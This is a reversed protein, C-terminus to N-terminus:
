KSPNENSVNTGNQENKVAIFQNTVIDHFLGEYCPQENINTLFELSVSQYPYILKGTMTTNQTDYYAHYRKMEDVSDTVNNKNKLLRMMAPCGSIGLTLPSFVAGVIEGKTFNLGNDFKAVSVKNFFNLDEIRVPTKGTNTFTVRYAKYNTKLGSQLPLNTTTIKVQSQEAFCATNVFLLSMFLIAAFLKKM